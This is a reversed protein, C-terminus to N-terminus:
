QFTTRSGRTEPAIRIQRGVSPVGNVDVVYLAYVGPVAQAPLKPSRVRLEGGNADGKPQFALKVYRDGATLSHTNHDSRILAVSAITHAAGAVTIDFHGRYQIDSPSATIVPRAAVGGGSAFLYPPYFIQGVPVGLDPDGSPLLGSHTSM